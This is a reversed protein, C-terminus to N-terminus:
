VLTTLTAGLLPVKLLCSAARSPEEEKSAHRRKERGEPEAHKRDSGLFEKLFIIGLTRWGEGAYVCPREASSGVFFPLFAIPPDM